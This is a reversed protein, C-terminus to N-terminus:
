AEASASKAVKPQASLGADTIATGILRGQLVVSVGDAGNERIATVARRVSKAALDATYRNEGVVIILLIRSQGDRVALDLLEAPNLIIAVKANSRVTLMQPLAARDSESLQPQPHLQLLPLPLSTPTDAHLM